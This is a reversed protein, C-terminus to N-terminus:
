HALDDEHVYKMVLDGPKEVVVEGLSKSWGPGSVTMVYTGPVVADFYFMGRGEYPVVLAAIPESGYSKLSVRLSSSPLYGYVGSLDPNPTPPVTNPANQTLTIERPALDGTALPMPAFSCDGVTLTLGNYYGPMIRLRVQAPLRTMAPQIAILSWRVGDEPSGNVVVPDREHADCGVLIATVDVHIIELQTDCHNDFCAVVPAKPAPRVTSALATLADNSTRVDLAIQDRAAKTLGQTRLLNEFIQKARVLLDNAFERYDAHRAYEGALV